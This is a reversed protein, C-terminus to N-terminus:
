KSANFHIEWCGDKYGCHVAIQQVKQSKRNKMFSPPKKTLDEINIYQVDPTKQYEKPNKVCIGKNKLYTGIKKALDLTEGRNMKCFKTGKGGSHSGDFGPSHKSQHSDIVFKVDNDEWSLHENRENQSEQVANQTDRIGTTMALNKAQQEAQGKTSGPKPAMNDFPRGPQHVEGQPQEYQGGLSAARGRRYAGAHELNREGDSPRVFAKQEFEEPHIGVDKVNPVNTRIDQALAQSLHGNGPPKLPAVAGGVKPAEGLNQKQLLNASNPPYKQNFNSLQEQFKKLNEPTIKYAELSQGVDNQQQQNQQAINKAPQQAEAGSIEIPAQGMKELANNLLRLAQKAELTNPDRAALKAMGQLRKPLRAVRERDAQPLYDFEATDGGGNAGENYPVMRQNQKLAQKVAYKQAGAMIGAQIGGHLGNELLEFGDFKKRDGFAIQVGQLAANGATSGFTGTLMAWRISTVGHPALGSFGGGLAGGVAGQLIAKGFGEGTIKTGHIGAGVLYGVASGAVGSAAGIGANIAVRTLTTATQLAGSALGSFGAAVGGGIAGTILGVAVDKGFSNFSFDGNVAQPVAALLHIEAQKTLLDHALTGGITIKTSSADIWGVASRHTLASIVM